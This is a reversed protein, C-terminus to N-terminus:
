WSEGRVKMGAEFGIDASFPDDEIWGSQSRQITQYFDPGTTIGSIGGHGTNEPGDIINEHFHTTFYHLVM